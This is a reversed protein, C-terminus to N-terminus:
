KRWKTSEIFIIETIHQGLIFYSIQHQWFICYNSNLAISTTHLKLKTVYTITQMTLHQECFQLITQATFSMHLHTDIQHQELFNYSSKHQENFTNKYNPAAPFNTPLYKTSRVFLYCIPATLFVLLKLKTSNIFQMKKIQDQQM